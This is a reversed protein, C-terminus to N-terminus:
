SDQRQMNAPGVRVDTDDPMDQMQGRLELMQAPCGPPVSFSGAAVGGLRLEMLSTSGEVCKISWVLAGSSLQGEVPTSFRYRGPSLLLLQSALVANQRGYYLIRLKGDAPEALGASSSSYSWNFPPPANLREFSPNFVLPRAEQRIGAFQRWLQHARGYAGRAVLGQLLRSQWVQSRSGSSSGAGAIAVVLEANAPDEALTELVPERLEPNDALIGALEAPAGPARAYDSLSAVLPARAGPVLRALIAIERLAERTKGQRLWVESLLYRAAAARPARARAEMLLKEARDYDGIRAALAGQVLFPEPRLPSTATLLRLREMTGSGPNGGKAAVEGVEQMVRSALSDPAFPALKSAIGLQQNAITLRVATLAILLAMLFILIATALSRRSGQADISQVTARPARHKPHRRVDGRVKAM